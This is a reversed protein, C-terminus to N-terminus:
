SDMTMTMVSRFDADHHWRRWLSEQYLRMAAAVADRGDQTLGVSLPPEIEAYRRVVFDVVPALAIISEHNKNQITGPGQTRILLKLAREMLSTNGDRSVSTADMLQFEVAVNSRCFAILENISGLGAALTTRSREIEAESLPTYEPM